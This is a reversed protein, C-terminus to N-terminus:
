GCSTRGCPARSGSTAPHSCTTTCAILWYANYDFLTQSGGFIPSSPISGDGHQAGAFWGLMARQVDWHPTSVDFTRNIVAEDGVYPCRDRVVGDLIM